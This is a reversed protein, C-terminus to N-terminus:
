KVNYIDELMEKVGIQDHIYFSYIKRNILRMDSKGPLTRFNIDEEKIGIANRGISVMDVLNMDTNVYKYVKYIVPIFNEKAKVALSYLFKQQANIRGLDGDIYGTENNGKRWRLFDLSNKGDLIQRGKKLDIDLPPNASIDKYKMEFPVDVEVGGVTDVIMKVGEYDVKLYHHIPIDNLIYSATKIVGDIDHSYYVSNIKRQDGSNYGKRHVYTDRPISIVEVDKSDQNFSVILITDTRVDEMGLVLFNVRSDDEVAESLSKYIKPEKPETELKNLLSEAIDVDEYFGFGLNDRVNLNKKKLYTASGAYVAFFFIFFSVIFVKMFSKM